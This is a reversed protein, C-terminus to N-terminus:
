FQRMIYERRWMYDSIHTGYEYVRVVVVDLHATCIIPMLLIINRLACVSCVFAGTQTRICLYMIIHVDIEKQQLCMITNSIGTSWRM